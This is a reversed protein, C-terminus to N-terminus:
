KLTQLVTHQLPIFGFTNRNHLLVNYVEKYAELLAESIKTNM